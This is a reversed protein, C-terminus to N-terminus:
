IILEQVLLDDVNDNNIIEGIFYRLYERLSVNPNISEFDIKVVGPIIIHNRRHNNTHIITAEM